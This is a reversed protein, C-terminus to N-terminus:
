AWLPSLANQLPIVFVAAKDYLIHLFQFKTLFEQKKSM